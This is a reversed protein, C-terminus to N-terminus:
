EYFYLYISKYVFSWRLANPNRQKLIIQCAKHQLCIKEMYQRLDVIYIKPTVNWILRSYASRELYSFDIPNRNFGPIPQVIIQALPSSRQIIYIKVCTDQCLFSLCAFNSVKQKQFRKIYEYFQQADRSMSCKSIFRRDPKPRNYM